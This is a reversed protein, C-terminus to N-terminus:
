KQGKGKEEYYKLMQKHYEEIDLGFSQLTSIVKFYNEEDLMGADILKDKISEFVESKKDDSMFGVFDPNLIFRFDDSNLRHITYGFIFEKPVVGTSETMMNVPLSDGAKDDGKAYGTNRNFHGLFYKKGDRDTFTEPIAFLINTYIENCDTQGYFYNVIKELLFDNVDRLQGFMKVNSLLGGWGHIYLGKDMICDATDIMNDSRTVGHVGISYDEPIKFFLEIFEDLKM